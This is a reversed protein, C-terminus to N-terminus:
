RNLNSVFVTIVAVFLALMFFGLKKWFVKAGSKTENTDNKGTIRNQM